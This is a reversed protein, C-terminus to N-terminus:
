QGRASSKPQLKAADYLWLQEHDTKGVIRALSRGDPALNANLLYKTTRLAHTARLEPFTFRM